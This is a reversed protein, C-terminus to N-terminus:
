QCCIAISTIVASSGAGIRSCTVSSNTISSPNADYQISDGGSDSSRCALGTMIRGTPCTSTAYLNGSGSDTGTM